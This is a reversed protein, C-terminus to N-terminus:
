FCYSYFAYFYVLLVTGSNKEPVDGRDKKEALYIGITVYSRMEPLYRQKKRNKCNKWRSSPLFIPLFIPDAREKRPTFAPFIKPIYPYNWM